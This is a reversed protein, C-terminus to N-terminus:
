GERKVIINKDWVKRAKKIRNQMERRGRGELTLGLYKLKKVQKVYTEVNIIGGFYAQSNIVERLKKGTGMKECAM